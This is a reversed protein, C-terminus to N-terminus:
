CLSREGHLLLSPPVLCQTGASLQEVGWDEGERNQEPSGFEGSWRPWRSTWWRRDGAAASVPRRRGAGTERRDGDPLREVIKEFYNEPMGAIVPESTDFEEICRDGQATPVQYRVIRKDPLRALHEAHHLLTVSDLSSGLLLVDGGAEVLKGLPSGPGYGYDLPHGSCLWEARGGIAVMSAGPNHSRVAGTWTRIVEPLM